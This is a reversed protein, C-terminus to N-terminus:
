LVVLTSQGPALPHGSSGVQAFDSGWSQGEEGKRRFTATAQVSRLPQGARNRVQFRVVPALYQTQGQAPDIAWYTEVDSVQLVAQPDPSRCTVLPVALALVATGAPRM